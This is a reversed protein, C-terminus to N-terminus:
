KRGKILKVLMVIVLVPIVIPAILSVIGTIIAFLLMIIGVICIILLLKKWWTNLLMVNAKRQETGKRSYERNDAEYVAENATTGGKADIITRAIMWPDGLEDLVAQETRGKRMEDDIYQSYYNLNDQLEQSSMDSSLAVRLGDLFEIKTM